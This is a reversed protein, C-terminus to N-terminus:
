LLLSEIEHWEGECWFLVSFPHFDQYFEYVQDVDKGCESYHLFVVFLWAIDIFHKMQSQPAVEQDLDQEFGSKINCSIFPSGTEYLEV